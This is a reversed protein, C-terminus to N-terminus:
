ARKLQNWVVLRAGCLEAVATDYIDSIERRDFVADYKCNGM